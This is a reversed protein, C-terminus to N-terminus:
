IYGIVTAYHEYKICSVQGPAGMVTGAASRRYKKVARQLSMKRQTSRLHRTEDTAEFVSVQVCAFVCDMRVNNLLLLDEHVSM